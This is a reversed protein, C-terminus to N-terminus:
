PAGVQSIPRGSGPLHEQLYRYTGLFASSASYVLLVPTRINPVKDLTLVGVEEYDRVM